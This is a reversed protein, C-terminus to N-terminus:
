HVPPIVSGQLVTYPGVAASPTGLGGDDGGSVWKFYYTGAALSCNHVHPDAGSVPAAYIANRATPIFGTASGACILTTAALAADTWTLTVENVGATATPTAPAAPSALHDSNREIQPSNGASSQLLNYKYYRSIASLGKVVAASGWYAKQPATM